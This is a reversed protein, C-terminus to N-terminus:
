SISRTGQRITKVQVQKRITQKSGMSDWMKGKCAAGTTAEESALELEKIEERVEREEDSSLSLRHKQDWEQISMFPDEERKAEKTKRLIQREDALINGGHLM